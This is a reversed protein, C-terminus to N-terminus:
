NFLFYFYIFVFPSALLLSDFRDLIGGHGPLIKGSDKVDLSRKFMSEVLDGLTGSIWIIVSAIAWEKFDLLSTGKSLLYCAALGLIVAGISGEWTKKPSIRKFLPTKGIAKGTLYAGTDQTWLLIFFGLLLSPQYPLLDSPKVIFNLLALPVSIYILGIVTLSLNQLPNIKNRFLEIILLSFLVPINLLLIKISFIEFCFLACSIFLFSGAAIAPIVQVEADKVKKSLGYFELLGFFNILGFLAAFSWNSWLICIVLTAVLVAGTITRQFFNNM